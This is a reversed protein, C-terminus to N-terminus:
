QRGSAKWVEAEFDAITVLGIRPYEIDVMVYLVFSMIFAFGLVHVWNRRESLSMAFGALLAGLGVSLWLVLYVAFPTHTQLMMGRTTATDFMANLAPLLLQNAAPKADARSGGAVALRWIEAQLPGIQAYSAYFEEPTRSDRYTTIRLAVYREFVARLAPQADSPLLQIRSEATSTDNAEQVVLAKRQDFRAAAGSFIFAMLLGILAFIVGEMLRAGPTSEVTSRLQPNAGLRRGLEVALLLSLFLGAWLLVPNELLRVMLPNM